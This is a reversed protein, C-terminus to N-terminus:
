FVDWGFMKSSVGMFELGFDIQLVVEFELFTQRNAGTKSAREYQAHLSRASASLM